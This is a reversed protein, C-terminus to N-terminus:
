VKEKEVAAAVVNIVEVALTVGGNGVVVVVVVEGIAVAISAAFIANMGMEPESTM